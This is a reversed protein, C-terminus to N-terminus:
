IVVVVVVVYVTNTTLHFDITANTSERFFFDVCNSRAEVTLATIANTCGVVTGLSSQFSIVSFNINQGFLSTLLLCHEFCLNLILFFFM